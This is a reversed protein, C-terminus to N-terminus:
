VAASAPEPYYKKLLKVIGIQGKPKVLTTKQIKTEGHKTILTREIVEFWDRDIYSQYPENDDLLVKMQRLFRFLRTRGIEIGNKTALKAMIRMNISSDSESVQEAFEVLPKDEEVKKALSAKEKYEELWREAREIPDEIMYSDPKKMVGYSGTKRIEPLVEDFVWREFKDAAPLKSHTILRYINGETIFVTKQRRGITDIVSRFTLGDPSCHDKVSKHPNSYGLAKAVDIGSFLVEDGERVTRIEGFDSNKFIQISNDM